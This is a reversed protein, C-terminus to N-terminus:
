IEDVPKPKFGIDPTPLIDGTDGTTSKQAHNQGNEVPPIKDVPSINDGASSIDGATNDINGEV